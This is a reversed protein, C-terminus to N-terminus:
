EKKRRGRSCFDDDFCSRNWYECHLFVGSKKARSYACDECCAAALTPAGNINMEMDRLSFHVERDNLGREIYWAQLRKYLAEGDIMRM